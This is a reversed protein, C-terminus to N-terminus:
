RKFEDRADKTECKSYDRLAAAYDEVEEAFSRMESAIKDARRAFSMADEAHSKLAFAYREVAEKHAEIEWSECEHTGTVEFDAYCFPTEPRRPPDARLATPDLYSNPAVLFLDPAMCNAAAPAAALTWALFLRLM